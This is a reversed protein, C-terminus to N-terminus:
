PAKPQHQIVQEVRGLIEVAHRGLLRSSVLRCGAGSCRSGDCRRCGFSAARRRRFALPNGDSHRDSHQDGAGTGRLEGAYIENGHSGPYSLPVLLAVGIAEFRHIRWENRASKWHRMAFPTLLLSRVFNVGWDLLLPSVAFRSVAQKDWLTYAAIFTGTVLAYAM